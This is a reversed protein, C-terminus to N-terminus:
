GNVGERDGLPAGGGSDDPAARPGRGARRWEILVCALAPLYATAVVLLWGSTPQMGASPAWAGAVTCFAAGVWGALVLLGLQAPSSAVLLLALQDYFYRQPVVALLLVLRARPNRWALLALVLVPGLPTLLPIRGNYTALQGHEFWDAPWGPYLVFSIVVLGAALALGAVRWRGLAVVLIGQQPKAVAFPAFAPLLLGAVILPTWQVSHVASAAPVSLLTLLRWPAGRALLAWALAAFGLGVFTPAIAPVPLALLPAVVVMTPFPYAALAAGRLRVSYPSGGALFAKFGVVPAAIDGLGSGSWSVAHPTTATLLAALALVALCIALRAGPGLRGPGEVLLEQRRGLAAAAAAAARWLTPAPRSTPSAGELTM